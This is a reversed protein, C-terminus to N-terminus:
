PRFPLELHRAQRYHEPIARHLDGIIWIRALYETIFVTVALYEFWRMWDRVPNEVSYVLLAVSALVLVTMGLDFWRKEPARPNDPLDRARTKAQGYWPSAELRLFVRILLNSM